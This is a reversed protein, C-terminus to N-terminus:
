AAPNYINSWCVEINSSAALESASDLFGCRLMHDALIRDMRAQNWGLANDKQPQRIAMLHQLRVKCRRAELEEVEAIESLQFMFRCHTLPQVGLLSYIMDERLIRTINRTIIKFKMFEHSCVKRKLSELRALATPIMVNPHATGQRTEESPKLSVLVSELEDLLYKRDRTTRRLSEFPVQLHVVSHTHPTHRWSLVNWSIFSSQLLWKYDM